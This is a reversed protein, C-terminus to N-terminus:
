QSSSLAPSTEVGLDVVVFSDSSGTVHTDALVAFSRVTGMTISGRPFLRPGRLSRRKHQSVFYYAHRNPIIKAALLAKAKKYVRPREFFTPPRHRM